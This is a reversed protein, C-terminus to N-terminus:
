SSADLLKKTDSLSAGRHWGLRTRLWQASVSLPIARGHAMGEIYLRVACHRLRNQAM